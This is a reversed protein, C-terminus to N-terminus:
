LHAPLGLGGLLLRLCLHIVGDPRGDLSDLSAFMIAATAALGGVGGPISPLKRRGDKAKGPEPQKEPWKTPPWLRAVGYHTRARYFTKATCGALGALAGKGMGPKYIRRVHAWFGPYTNWEDIDFLRVSSEPPPVDEVARVVGNREAARDEQQWLRMQQMAAATAAAAAAAATNQESPSASREQLARLVDAQQELKQSLAQLQEFRRGEISERLMMRNLEARPDNPAWQPQPRSEIEAPDVEAVIDWRQYETNWTVRSSVRINLGDKARMWSEFHEAVTDDLERVRKFKEFIEQETKRVNEAPRLLAGVSSELLEQQTYLLVYTMAPNVLLFKGDLGISCTLYIPLRRGQGRREAQAM